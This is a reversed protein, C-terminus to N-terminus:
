SCGFSSFCQHWVMFSAVLEVLSLIDIFCCLYQNSVFNLQGAERHCLVDATKMRHSVPVSNSSLLAKCSYEMEAGSFAYSQLKELLVSVVFDISAVDELFPCMSCASIKVSKEVVYSLGSLKDSSSNLRELFVVLSKLVYMELSYDELSFYKPGCLFAFLHLLRLLFSIDTKRASLLSYSVECVFGIQDVSVCISALLLGGVFLLDTSAAATSWFICNGNPLTKTRSDCGHMMGNSVDDHVLITRNLLFDEILALLEGVDCSELFMRRTGADNLM